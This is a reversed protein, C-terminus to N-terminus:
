LIIEHSVQTIVESKIPKIRRPTRSSGNYKNIRRRNVQTVKIDNISGMITNGDPITRTDKGVLKNTTVISDVIDITRRISADVHSVGAAVHVQRVNDNMNRVPCGVTRPVNITNHDIRTLIDAKVIHTDPIHRTGRKDVSIRTAEINNTVTIDRQM